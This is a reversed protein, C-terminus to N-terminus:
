AGRPPGPQGPRPPGAPDPDLARRLQDHAAEFVAVHEELPRDRLGEVAEIVDDVARVGTRETAPGDAPDHESM